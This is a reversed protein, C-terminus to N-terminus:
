THQKLNQGFVFLFMEVQEALCGTSKAFDSAVKLYEPYLVPANTYTIKRMCQFERYLETKIAQIVRVDLILAKNGEVEGGIFYLFKSYTSLGLGDIAKVQDYHSEWDDIGKAAYVLLSTIVDLQGLVKLFNNGRMGSSYGWMITAIVLKKYNQSGAIKKLDQRRLNLESKGGFLSTIIKWAEPNEDKYKLWTSLKTSIAHDEVPLQRILAEYNKM